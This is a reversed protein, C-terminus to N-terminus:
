RAGEGFPQRNHDHQDVLERIRELAAHPAECARTVYTIRSGPEGIQPSSAEGFFRGGVSLILVQWDRRLDWFVVSTPRPGAETPQPAPQRHDTRIAPRSM